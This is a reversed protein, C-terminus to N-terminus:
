CLPERERYGKARAIRSALANRDGLVEGIARIEGSRVPGLDPEAPRPLGVIGTRQGSIAKECTGLGSRALRLLHEEDLGMLWDQLHPPLEDIDMVARASRGATAYAQVLKAENSM